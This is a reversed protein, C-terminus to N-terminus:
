CSGDCGNGVSCSISCSGTTDEYKENCKECLMVGTTGWNDLKDTYEKCGECWKNCVDTKVESNM